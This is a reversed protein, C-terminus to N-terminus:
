AWPDSPDPGFDIQGSRIRNTYERHAIDFQERSSTGNSRGKTQIPESRDYRGEMINTFKSEASIFDLDARWGRDNSGTCHPSAEVKVLATMWGDIGGADRLRARIASKRKANLKAALPLGARGAMENYADFAIKIQDPADDGSSLRDESRLELERNRTGQERGKRELLSDETLIGHTNRSDMWTISLKSIKEKSPRNIVQHESFKIIHGYDRGDEGKGIRIYGVRSLHTLATHISVSLERLPFCEAQILKPNANFYGYDDAYNLLAAALMHVPEPLESLDENRWFEPKITRIRAM